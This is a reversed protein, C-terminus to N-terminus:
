PAVIVEEGPKSRGTQKGGDAEVYQDSLEDAVQRQRQGSM